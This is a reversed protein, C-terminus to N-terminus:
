NCTGISSILPGVPLKKLNQSWQSQKPKTEKTNIKSMCKERLFNTSILKFAIKGCFNATFETIYVNIRTPIIWVDPNHNNAYEILKWILSM